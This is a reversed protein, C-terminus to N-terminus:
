SYNITSLKLREIIKSRLVEPAEVKISEGFSLILQELEYNPILNLSIWLGDKDHRKKRQSGHLPKTLIYPALKPALWLDIKQVIADKTRTVGLLDDFYEDFDVFTNEIFLKKVETIHVIRDLPFNSIDDYAANYGFLFWRKNYQKLHYPYIEHVQTTKGYPEYDISLTKKNLIANFLLELHNLGKLYENTDFSVIETGIDEIKFLQEFRPVLEKIWEFQPIGKLRSFILMSAKLQESESQNLPQNNISYITEEYRYYCRKGVRIRNLEIQWGQESEMFKIDEFLQRRSITSQEGNYEYLAKNCAELLDQWFYQKGTNRFCKDLVQYRLYANKNIAM